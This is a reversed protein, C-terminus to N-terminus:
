LINKYYSPQHHFISIEGLRFQHSVKPIIPYCDKLSFLVESLLWWFGIWGVTATTGSYTKSKTVLINLLAYFGSKSWVYICLIDCYILIRDCVSCIRSFFFVSCMWNQPGSWYWVRSPQQRGHDWISDIDGVAPSNDESTTFSKRVSPRRTPGTPNNWSHSIHLPQSEVCIHVSMCYMVYTQTQECITCWRHIWCSITYIYIRYIEGDRNKSLKIAREEVKSSWLSLGIDGAPNTIVKRSQPFICMFCGLFLRHHSSQICQQWFHDKSSPFSSLGYFVLILSHYIPYIYIYRTYHLGDWHNQGIQKIPLIKCVSKNAKRFLCGTPRSRIGHM